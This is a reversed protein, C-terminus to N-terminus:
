MKAFIREEKLCEYTKTGIYVPTTHGIPKLIRDGVKFKSNEGVAVVTAVRQYHQKPLIIGSETKEEFLPEDKIMVYGNQMKVNM